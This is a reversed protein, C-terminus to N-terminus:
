KTQLIKGVSGAPNKKCCRPLHRKDWVCAGKLNYKNIRKRQLERGYNYVLDQRTLAYYIFGKECSFLGQLTGESAIKHLYGM